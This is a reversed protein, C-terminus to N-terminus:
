SSRSWLPQMVGKEQAYCGIDAEIALDRLFVRSVPEPAAM